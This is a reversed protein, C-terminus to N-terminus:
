ESEIGVIKLLEELDNILYHPKENILEEKTRAGTPIAVAICGAKKAAQIDFVHDGVMITKRPKVKLIECAKLIPEPSPKVEKVEEQTIIVDPTIGLEKIVKMSTKKSKTTVIGIKIGAKKLKEVVEKAHPLFIVKTKEYAKKYYDHFAKAQEETLPYVEKIKEGLRHGVIERYIKEKSLPKLGFHKSTKELAEVVSNLSVLTGDLDFLVASYKKM